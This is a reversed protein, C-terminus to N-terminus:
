RVRGRTPEIREVGSWTGRHQRPRWRALLYCLTGAVLAVGLANLADYHGLIALLLVLWFGLAFALTRRM